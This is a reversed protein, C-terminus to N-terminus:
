GEGESAKLRLAATNRGKPDLLEYQEVHGLSILANM